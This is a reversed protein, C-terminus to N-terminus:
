DPLNELGANEFRVEWRKASDKGKIGYGILELREKLMSKTPRERRYEFQGRAVWILVAEAKVHSSRGDKIKDASRALALLADRFKAGAKEAEEKPDSSNLVSEILPVFSEAMRKATPLAGEEFGLEKFRVLCFLAMARNVRFIEEEKGWSGDLAGKIRFLAKREARQIRGSTEIEQPGGERYLEWLKFELCEALLRKGDNEFGLPWNGLLSGTQHPPNEAAQAAEVGGTVPKKIKKPAAGKQEGSPMKSPKKKMGSEHPNNTEQGQSSHNRVM